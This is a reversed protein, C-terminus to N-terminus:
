KNYYVTFAQIINKIIFFSRQICCTNSYIKMNRISLSASKLILTHACVQVYVCSLHDVELNTGMRAQLAEKKKM